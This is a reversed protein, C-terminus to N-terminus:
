SAESRSLSAASAALLGAVNLIPCVQGDVLRVLWKAKGLEFAVYMTAHESDAVPTDFRHSSRM